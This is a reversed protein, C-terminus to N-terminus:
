DQMIIITMTTMSNMHIAVAIKKVNCHVQQRMKFRRQHERNQALKKNVKDRTERAQGQQAAQRKSHREANLDRQELPQLSDSAALPQPASSMGLMTSLAFQTMGQDAPGTADPLAAFSCEFPEQRLCSTSDFAFSSPLSKEIELAEDLSLTSRELLGSEAFESESFALEAACPGM